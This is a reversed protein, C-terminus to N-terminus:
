AGGKEAEIAKREEEAWQVALAKMDFRRGILLEGDKLIQAEVGFEGHYRLECSWIHHDASRFSWLPEGPRPVRPPIRPGTDHVTRGDHRRGRTRRRSSADSSSRSRRGSCAGGCRQTQDWPGAAVQYARYLARGVADAGCTQEVERVLAERREPERRFRLRLSEIISDRIERDQDDLPEALPRKAPTAPAPSVPPMTAGRARARALAEVGRVIQQAHPPLDRLLSQPMARRAPRARVGRTASARVPPKKKAPARRPKKSM